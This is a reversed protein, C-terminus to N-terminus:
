KVHKGSPPMGSPDIVVGVAIGRGGNVQGLATCANTLIVTPMEPTYLFLGPFPIKTGQDPQQLLDDARLRLNTHGTSKTRRHLAPFIYIKQSRSRAFHEMQIRNIHHRLTNMKVVTTAGELEPALLSTITKSNLLALDDETLTANRARTLMDHFIPDEAQRMQQDLIIINTFRHWILRGNAHEDNGQRPDQWLAPGRVPSFQYFDGMLLVIPLGGFLDQSSRDLSKAIKCQRNVTSLMSLDMMSVEDIIMITKKSWLRRVRFSMVAEQTKNISIGLSTHYTNGSINDAAAGTPAMLIVEDKRSILNMGAVIGKIVQSKGVGGEGGVYLLMQDRKSADHAHDAWALAGSLVREVVLRQKENLPVDENVLLTLSSGTPNDGVQSRRDTPSPLGEAGDLLPHLIGDGLDINFDDVEFALRNEAISDDADSLAAFGKVQNEWCQLTTTPIFRLGSTAHTPLSFIDLPQLHDLEMTQPRTTRPLVAPVRQAIILRETNWSKAISHYAAILTEANFDEDVPILAEESDSDPDVLEVNGIDYDLSDDHQNASTRLAADIRGDERSKRLLEINRAFNRNHPSLTPEVINWVKASADRKMEYEAAYQQFLPPLQNWPVFLGLLIEALDNVIATTKPHGRRLSEEETQYESLQGAFTVIMVLSKKHALRQV